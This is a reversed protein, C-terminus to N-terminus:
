ISLVGGKVNGSSLILINGEVKPITGGASKNELALIIDEITTEQETLLTDQETLENSLDERLDAGKVKVENYGYKESKFIQEETTPTVELDELEPYVKKVGIKLPGIKVRRRM